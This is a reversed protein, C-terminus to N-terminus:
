WSSVRQNEFQGDKGGHEIYDSNRTTYNKQLNKWNLAKEINIVVKWHHHCHLEKWNERHEEWFHVYNFLAWSGFVSFNITIKLFFSLKPLSL